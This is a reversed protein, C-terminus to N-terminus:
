HVSKLIIGRVWGFVFAQESFGGVSRFAITGVLGGCWLPPRLMGLPASQILSGSRAVPIVNM